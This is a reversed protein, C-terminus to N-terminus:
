RSIAFCYAQPQFFRISCNNKEFSYSNLKRRLNGFFAAYLLRTSNSELLVPSIIPQAMAVVSQPIGDEGCAQSSFIKVAVCVNGVCIRQIVFDNQTAVKVIDTETDINELPSVSVYCHRYIAIHAEFEDPM